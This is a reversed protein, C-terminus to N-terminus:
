LYKSLFHCLDTQFVYRVQGMENCCSYSAYFIVVFPLVENSTILPRFHMYQVFRIDVWGKLVIFILVSM